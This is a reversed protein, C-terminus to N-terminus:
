FYLKTELYYFDPSTGFESRFRLDEDTDGLPRRGRAIVAGAVVEIEDAASWALGPQALWSGDGIGWLGALSGSVLPHIRGSALAGLLHRGAHRLRGEAVLAFRDKLDGRAAGNYFYEAQLQLGGAAFGRGAGAVASLHSDVESGSSGGAGTEDQAGFWAAEGRLELGGLEGAAAGGLQYGGHIKGVQAAADWGRANGFARAVLASRYWADGGGAPAAGSQARGPVGVLTAGSFDGLPLDARVADVGPKYDRDFQTSGFPLFVDLPNWFWAKGFTVAQRGVTVDAREFAIRLHARDLHASARVDGGDGWDRRAGALRYPVEAGAAGLLNASGAATNAFTTLALNQVAHAEWRLRPHPRGSAILRLALGTHFDAGNDRGRLLPQDYNRVAVGTTRLNADLAPLLGDAPGGAAPLASLAAGLCAAAAPRM